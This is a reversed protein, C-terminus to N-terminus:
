RSFTGASVLLFAVVGGGQAGEGAGGADEGGDGEVAEGVLGELVVEVVAAAVDEVGDAGVEVVIVGVGFFVEDDM